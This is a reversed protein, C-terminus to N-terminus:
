RSGAALGQVPRIEGSCIRQQQLDWNGGAHRRGNDRRWLCLVGTAFADERRRVGAEPLRVALDSDEFGSSEFTEDSGRVNAFDSSWVSLRCSRERQWRHAAVKRL